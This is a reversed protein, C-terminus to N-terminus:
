KAQQKAWKVTEKITEVTREPTSHIQKFQQFGNKLLIAAIVALVGGALLAATWLPMTLALAYVAGLLLFLMAYLAFVGGIGLWVASAKAKTLEERVETKALRVELRVM